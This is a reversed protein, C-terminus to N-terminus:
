PVAEILDLATEFAPSNDSFGPTTVMLNYAAPSRRFRVATDPTATNWGTLDAHATKSRSELVDLGFMGRVPFDDIRDYKRFRDGGALDRVRPNFMYALRIGSQGPIGGVPTPSPWPAYTDSQLQPDTQSPCDFGEPATVIGNEYAVGFNQWALPQSGNKLAGWRSWHNARMENLASIGPWRMPPLVGRHDTAYVTAGLCLQRLNSACVSRRSAERASGLAPLLLAILVGIISIVVLLEILTFGYRRQMM